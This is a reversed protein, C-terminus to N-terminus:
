FEKRGLRAQLDLRNVKVIEDSWETLKLAIRQGRFPMRVPYERIGVGNSGFEVAGEGVESSWELLAYGNTKLDARLHQAMGLKYRYPDGFFLPHYNIEMPINQGGTDDSLVDDKAGVGDVDGDRVWGDYGGVVLSEQGTTREFRSACAVNFGQHESPGWWQQTRYNYIWLLNNQTEGVGPLYLWIERRRRNHVAYADKWLERDAFDFEREVKMGIERVAEETGLYPGRDSLFFCVNDVRVLTAPAILGVEASVGDTGTDIRLDQRSYGTFRSVNDEKFLLLSAGVVVMNNLPESDYTEIAATGGDETWLWQEPDDIASYHVKKTDKEILFMRSKYVTPHTPNTPVGNSTLMTLASSDWKAYNAGDALYLLPVTGQRHPVAFVPNTTDLGGAGLSFTPDSENQYYLNGNEFAVLQNGSAPQWQRLGQITGGTGIVGSHTRQSGSRKQVAGHQWERANKASLLEGPQLLDESYSNNVGLHASITEAQLRRPSRALPM